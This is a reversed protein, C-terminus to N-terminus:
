VRDAMEYVLNSGALVPGPKNPFKTKDLRRQIKRKRADLQRRLKTKVRFGKRSRPRHCNNVVMLRRFLHSTELKKPSKRRSLRQRYAQKLDLINVSHNPYDFHLATM